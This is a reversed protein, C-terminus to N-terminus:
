AALKHETSADGRVHGDIANHIAALRGSRYLDELAGAVMPCFLKGKMRWIEGFAEDVSWAAKYPRETTLADFADAVAVIRASIPIEEGALGDPYGSGDWREHHWRAVAREIAFMPSDGILREGHQPHQRMQVWDRESLKGPNLLVEDRLQLKGLDHITSAAGIREADGPPLGLELALEVSYGRIRRLHGGTHPDRAEAADALRALSDRSAQELRAYSAELEERLLAVNVAPALHDAIGGLLRMREDNFYGEKRSAAGLIGLLEGDFRVPFVAATAIGARALIEREGTPIRADEGPREIICPLQTAIEALFERGRPSNRSVEWSQRLEDSVGSAVNYAGMGRGPKLGEISVSTAGIFKAIRETAELLREALTGNGALSAAIEVYIDRERGMRDADSHARGNAVVAQILDALALVVPADPRFSRIPLGALLMVGDEGADDRVAAEIVWCEGAVLPAVDASLVPFPADDALLAAAVEDHRASATCIRAHEERAHISIACLELGFEEKAALAIEALIEATSHEPRMARGARVFLQRAAGALTGLSEAKRRHKEGYMRGDAAAFLAQVGDGDNPFTAIGFSGITTPQRDDIRAERLGAEIRAAVELADERSAGRLVVAFEDGGLRAACASGCAQAFAGAALKLVEDGFQHGFADNLAKFDDLDAVVLSLTGGSRRAEEVERTLHEQFARLNSLGTLADTDAIGRLQDTLDQVQVLSSELVRAHLLRTWTSISVFAALGCAVTALQTVSQESLPDGRNAYLAGCALALAVVVGAARSVLVIRRVQARAEEPVVKPEV